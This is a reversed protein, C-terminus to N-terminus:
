GRSIEQLAQEFISERGAITGNHRLTFEDRRTNRVLTPGYGTMKYIHKKSEMGDEFYCCFLEDIAGPKKLYEYRKLFQEIIFDEQIIEVYVQDALLLLLRDQENFSISDESLNLNIVITGQRTKIDQNVLDQLSCHITNKYYDFGANRLDTDICCGNVKEAVRQAMHSLLPHTVCYVIIKNKCSTQMASSLTNPSVKDKDQPIKDTKSESKEQTEISDEVQKPLTNPPVKDKDQSIKNTKSDSKEQTEISDEIQKNEQKANTFAKKTKTVIPPLVFPKAEVGQTRKDEGSEMEFLEDFDVRQAQKNTQNVIKDLIPTESAPLDENLDITDDSLDFCFDESVGVDQKMPELVSPNSMTESPNFRESPLKSIQAQTLVYDLDKKENPEDILRLISKINIFGNLIDYIGMKAVEFFYEDGLVRDKMIYIIRIEPRAEVLKRLQSLSDDAELLTERLVLLDYDKQILTKILDNKIGKFVGVCKHAISLTDILKNEVADNDFAFYIKM